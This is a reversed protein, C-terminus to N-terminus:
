VTGNPIYIKLLRYLIESGAHIARFTFIRLFSPIQPLNCYTELMLITINKPPNVPTAGPHFPSQRGDDKPRNWPAAGVVAIIARM